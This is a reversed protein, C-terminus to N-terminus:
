RISVTNTFKNIFTRKKKLTVSSLAECKSAVRVAQAVGEVRKKQPPTKLIPDQSSNEQPQSQAMIQRIGAEQTALIVLM